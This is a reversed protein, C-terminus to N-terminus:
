STAPRGLYKGQFSVHVGGHVQETLHVEATDSLRSYTLTRHLRRTPAVGEREPQITVLGAPADLDAPGLVRLADDLSGIGAVLRTLRQQETASIAAFHLARRSAPAAGGCMPCHYIRLTANGVVSGPEGSRDPYEFNYENLDPDFVIPYDPNSAADELFRCRCTEDTVSAVTPKPM